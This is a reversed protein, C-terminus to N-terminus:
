KRQQQSGNRQGSRATPSSQLALHKGSRCYTSLYAEAHSNPASFTSRPTITPQKGQLAALNELHNELVRGWQTECWSAVAQVGPTTRARLAWNQLSDLIWIQENLRAPKTMLQSHNVYSIVQRAHEEYQNLLSPAAANIQSITTKATAILSEADM